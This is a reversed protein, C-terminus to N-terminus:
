QGVDGQAKKGQKQRKPECQREQEATRQRNQLAIEPTM